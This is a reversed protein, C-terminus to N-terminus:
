FGLKVHTKEELKGNKIISGESEKIWSSGGHIEGVHVGIKVDGRNRIRMIESKNATTELDLTEIITNLHETKTWQSHSWIHMM